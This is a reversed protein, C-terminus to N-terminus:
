VASAAMNLGQDSPLPIARLTLRIHAKWQGQPLNNLSYNLYIYIYYLFLLLLLLSLANKWNLTSIYWRDLSILPHTSPSVDM